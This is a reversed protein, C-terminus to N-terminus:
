VQTVAEIDDDVLMEVAETWPKTTNRDAVDFWDRVRQEDIDGVVEPHRRKVQTVVEAFDIQERLYRWILTDIHDDRTEEVHPDLVEAPPVLKPVVGHAALQQKIFAALEPASFANLECRTAHYWTKGQANFVTHWHVM